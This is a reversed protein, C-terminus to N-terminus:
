AAIKRLPVGGPANNLRVGWISADDAGAVRLVEVEAFRGCEAWVTRIRTALARAGDENLWNHSGGTAARMRPVRATVTYIADGMVVTRSKKKM